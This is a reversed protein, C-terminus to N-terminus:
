KLKKIIRDYNMYMFIRYPIDELCRIIEEIEGELLTIKREKGKGVIVM